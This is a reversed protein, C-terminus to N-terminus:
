DKTGKKGRSLFLKRLWCYYSSFNVMCTDRNTLGGGIITVLLGNDVRLIEVNQSKEYCFCFRRNGILGKTGDDFATEKKDENIAIL